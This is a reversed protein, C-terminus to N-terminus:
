SHEQWQVGRKLLSTLFVAEEPYIPNAEGVCKGQAHMACWRESCHWDTPGIPWRVHQESKIVHRAIAMAEHLIWGHQEETREVDLLKHEKGGRPIHCFRFPLVTRGLNQALAWTYVTSQQDYRHKRWEERLGGTKWDWIRTGDFFDISGRMRVEIGDVQGIQHDFKEEILFENCQNIPIQPLVENYWRECIDRLLENAHDWDRIQHPHLWLSDWEVRLQDVTQEIYRQADSPQPWRTTGRAHHLCEEIFAHAATGLAAADSDYDPYEGRLKLRVQEPCQRWNAIDSQHIYLIDDILKM